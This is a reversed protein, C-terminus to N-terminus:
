TAAPEEDDGHSWVTPDEPPLAPAPPQHAHHHASEPVEPLDDPAHAILPEAAATALIPGNRRLLLWSAGAGLAAGVTLAAAGLVFIPDFPTDRATVWLGSRIIAEPDTVHVSSVGLQGGTSTAVVPGPFRLTLDISTLQETYSGPSFWGDPMTIFINGNSRAMMSSYENSDTGDPLPLSGRLRCAVEGSPAQLAEKALGGVNWDGCVNVASISGDSTRPGALPDRHQVIVDVDIDDRSFTATGSLTCGTLALLGVLAAAAKVCRQLMPHAYATM